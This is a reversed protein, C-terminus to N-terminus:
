PLGVVIMEIVVVVHNRLKHRELLSLKKLACMEDVVRDILYTQFSLLVIM